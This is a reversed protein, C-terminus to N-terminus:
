IFYNGYYALLASGWQYPVVLSDSVQLVSGAPVSSLAAEPNCYTVTTTSSRGSQLSQDISSDAVSSWPSELTSVPQFLVPQSSNSRDVKLM